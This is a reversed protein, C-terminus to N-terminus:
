PAAEPGSPARRLSRLAIRERPGGDGWEIALELELLRPAAPDLAAPARAPDRWPRVDLAWRYRGDELVGDRRGERLPGELDVRDLLSEAHLAARGADASWRVQRSSNTLIGLLLTLALALVGFAIVVELLTYGRAGRRNM